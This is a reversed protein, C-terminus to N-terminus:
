QVDKNLFEKGADTQLRTPKRPHAEKFLHQFAALLEKGSKNKIPIAWARKSFIDIVTMIFKHGKNDRSLAQMDALDAQWQADIGKVYTPNRKFHRRAPNHLSYSQHDALFQNVRGRTVKQMSMGNVVKAKKASRFLKEVGGYSGPDEANYYLEKLPKYMPDEEEVKESQPTTM